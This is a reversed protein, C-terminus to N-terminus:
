SNDTEQDTADLQLTMQVNCRTYPTPLGSRERFGLKRYLTLAPTLASNTELHITTAGCNRAREIAARGIQLGIKKGQAAPAVAMKALEFSTDNTRILACTGIVEGDLLAILIHGGPELIKEQPHDLALRDPEEIEFYKEIWEYNLRAFETAYEARFDVITASGTFNTETSDIM